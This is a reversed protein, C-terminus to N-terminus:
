VKVQRQLLPTLMHDPMNYISRVPRPKVKKGQKAAQSPESEGDEPVEPDNQCARKKSKRAPAMFNDGVKATVGGDYQSSGIGLLRANGTAGEGDVQSPGPLPTLRNTSEPAHHPPLHICSLSLVGPVLFGLHFWM